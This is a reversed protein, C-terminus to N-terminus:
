KRTQTRVRHRLYLSRWRHPLLRRLPHWRRGAPGGGPLCHGAARHLQGGLVVDGVDGYAVRDALAGARAFGCGNSGLDKSGSLIQLPLRQEMVGRKIKQEKKKKVAM